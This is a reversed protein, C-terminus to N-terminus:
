MVGNELDKQVKQLNILINKQLKDYNKEILGYLESTESELPSDSSKKKIIKQLIEANELVIQFNIEDILNYFLNIHHYEYHPFQQIKKSYFEIEKQQIEILLTEGDIISNKYLNFQLKALSLFNLYEFYFESAKKCANIKEKWYFTKKERKYKSNEWIINASWGIASFLIPIILNQIVEIQKFWM